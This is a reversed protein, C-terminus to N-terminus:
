DNLPITMVQYPLTWAVPCCSALLMTGVGQAAGVFNYAEWEHQSRSPDSALRSKVANAMAATVAQRMSEDHWALRYQELAFVHLHERGPRMYERYVAAEAVGPSLGRLLTAFAQENLDFMAKTYRATTDNFLDKKSPYRSFVLGKTRGAAKAIGDITTADYGKRGIEDRTAELLRDLLADGTDFDFVGDWHEFHVEPVTRLSDPAALATAIREWESELRVRRGSHRRTELLSGLAVIVLFARRAANAKSLRRPVPTLWADLRAGFSGRVAEHVVPDYTSVVLLEAVARMAEDPEVFARMVRGLDRADVGGRGPDPRGVGPVLSVVQEVAREVVPALAQSWAWAALASRDALRDSVASHSLGAAQAVRAPLLEPWGDQAALRVAAHLIREDNRISRAQRRIVSDSRQVLVGYRDGARTRQGEDGM